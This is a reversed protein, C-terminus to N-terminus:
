FAESLFPTPAPIFLDALPHSFDKSRDLPSSVASNLVMGTRRVVIGKAYSNGGGGNGGM